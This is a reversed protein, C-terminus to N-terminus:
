TSAPLPAANGASQPFRFTQGPAKHHTNFRASHHFHQAGEVDPLASCEGLKPTGKRLIFMDTRSLTESIRNPSHAAGVTFQKVM